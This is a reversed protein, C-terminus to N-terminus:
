VRHLHEMAASPPLEGEAVARCVEYIVGRLELARAHVSGAEELSRAVEDLLRGVEDEVLLGVRRGWAVLDGYGGLNEFGPEGEPEGDAAFILVLSPKL